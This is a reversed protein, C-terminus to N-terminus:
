VQTEALQSEFSHKQRESNDFRSEMEELGALTAELEKQLKTKVTQLDAVQAEDDHLRSNAEQLQNEYMKIKRDAESKGESLHKFDASLQLHEQQLREKAKEVNM